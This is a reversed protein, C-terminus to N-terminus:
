RRSGRHLRLAVAGMAERCANQAEGTATNKAIIAIDPIVSGDPDKVTGSISGTTTQSRVPVGSFLALTMILIQLAIGARQKM